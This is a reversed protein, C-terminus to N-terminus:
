SPFILLVRHMFRKVSGRIGPTWHLRRERSLRLDGGHETNFFLTTDRPEVVQYGHKVLFSYLDSRLDQETRGGFAALDEPALTRQHILAHYIWAYLQDEARPRYVGDKDRVRNALMARAWQPDVFGDGIERTDCPIKKGAILLHQKSGALFSFRVADLVLFELREVPRRVLYPEAANLTYFLEQTSNWGRAGTVDRSLETVIGDWGQPHASLFDTSNMGILLALDHDVEEANNSGHIRFKGGVLARYRKKNDFFRSNVLALGRSTTRIEMEPQADYVVFLRFAGGKGRKEKITRTSQRDGYFRYMNQYFCDSSWSIDFVRKVEFRSTLDTLIEKEHARGSPWLLVTGLM